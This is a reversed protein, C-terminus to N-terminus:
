EDGYVLEPSSCYRDEDDSEQEGYGRNPRWSNNNNQRHDGHDSMTSSNGADIDRWSIGSTDRDNDQHRDYSNSGDNSTRRHPHQQQRLRQRKRRDRDMARSSSAARSSHNQQIVSSSEQTMQSTSTTSDATRSDDLTSGGNSNRNSGGSSGPRGFLLPRRHSSPLPRDGDYEVDTDSEDDDCDSNDRHLKLSSNGGDRSTRSNQLPSKSSTTSAHSTRTIQSEIEGGDDYQSQHSQSDRPRSSVATAMATATPSAITPGTAPAVTAVRHRPAPNHEHVTMRYADRPVPQTNQATTTAESQTDNLHIADDYVEDEDDDVESDSDLNDGDDLDALPLVLFDCFAAINDDLGPNGVGGGHPDSNNSGSSRRRRSSSTASTSNREGNVVDKLVLQHQVALIGERNVSICTERALDLPQLAQRWSALSYSHTVRHINKNKNNNNDMTSTDEIEVPGPIDVVALSSHGKTKLRIYKQGAISSPKYEGGKTMTYRQYVFSIQVITAGPVLDLEHVYPVFNSSKTLCRAAIPSSRYATAADEGDAAGFSDTSDLGPLACTALPLGYSNPPTSPIGRSGTAIGGDDNWPSSTSLLEIKLLETSTHYSLVLSRQPVRYTSPDFFSSASASSTNYFSNNNSKSRSNGGSSSVQSDSTMLVTLCEMLTKWHVTFEHSTDEEDGEKDEDDKGNNNSSCSALRFESFLAMPLEMSAQFAANTSQSHITLGRKTCFVTMPHQTMMTGSSSGGLTGQTATATATSSRGGGRSGRGSQSQNLHHNHQQQQQQQQTAGNGSGKAVGFTKLLEVLAKPTDCRCYVLADDDEQGEGEEEEESNDDGEGNSIRRSSTQGHGNEEENHGDDDDDDSHLHSPHHHRRHTSSSHQPSISARSNINRNSMTNWTHTPTDNYGGGISSSAGAAEDDHHHDDHHVGGEVDTDSSDDGDDNHGGGGYNRTNSHNTVGPGQRLGRRRPDDGDM